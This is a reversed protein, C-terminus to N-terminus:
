LVARLFRLHLKRHLPLTQRLMTELAQMFDALAALTQDTPPDAGFEVAAIAALLEATGHATLADFRPAIRAAYTEAQEGTEPAADLLALYLSIGDSLAFATKRAADPDDGCGTKAAAYLAERRAAAASARRFAILILLLPLAALLLLLALLLIQLVVGGDGEVPIEDSPADPVLPLPLILSSDAAGGSSSDTRGSDEPMSPLRGGQVGDAYMGDLYPTSIEYNIWGIGDYYVEIWAHADRDLVAASFPLRADVATNKQFEGAMYGEVYRAPIGAERLMLAAASAFQVCYGERTVSLFNDVGDLSEDPTKQPDLTYTFRSPDTLYAIIQMVADHRDTYATPDLSPQDSPRRLRTRLSSALAANVAETVYLSDVDTAYTDLAYQRYAAALKWARETEEWELATMNVCRSLIRSATELVAPDLWAAPAAAGDPLYPELQISYAHPAYSVSFRLYGFSGCDVMCVATEGMQLEEGSGVFLWQRMVLEALNVAAIDAALTRIFSDDRMTVAYAVAGYATDTDFDRGAIIGDFYFSYDLGTPESSAYEVIGIEPNFFAPLCVAGTAGIRQRLNVQLTVFGRATHDQVRSLYDTYLLLSSDLTQYFNVRLQEPTFAQGFAARYEELTEADVPYWSGDRYDVAIWRRLYLPVSDTVTELWFIERDSYARPEADTSRPSLNETNGEYALSGVLFGDGTRLARIGLEIRDLPRRIFDLEPFPSKICAAPLALILLTLLLTGVAAIGSRPPTPTGTQGAARRARRDASFLTLMATYGALLLTFAALSRNLEGIFVAIPVALGVASPLLPRARRILAPVFVAALLLVLVTVALHLRVAPEPADAPLTIGNAVRFGKEQLRALLRDAIDAATGAFVSVPVSRWLWLVAILAGGLGVARAARFRALCGVLVSAAAAMLILTPLGLGEGVAPPTVALADCVFWALAFVTWAAVFWRCIVDPVSLSSKM